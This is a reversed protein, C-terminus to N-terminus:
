LGQDFAEGVVDALAFLYGEAPQSRLAEVVGVDPAIVFGTHARHTLLGGQDRNKELRISVGFGGLGREGIASIYSWDSDLRRFGM